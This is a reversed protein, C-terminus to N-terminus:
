PAGGTPRSAGVRVVEDRDDIPRLRVLVEENRGTALEVAAYDARIPLERHGRDVLVALRVCAPRGLDCVANLAARATRGTFLVDDVLVVEAGDVAFPVATSRVEPWRRARGLDDRYLTADVVGVPPREGLAETLRDALRGAIPEGRSRVGVLGLPAGPRRGAVIRAALADILGALGAADYEIREDM